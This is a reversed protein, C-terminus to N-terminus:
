GVGLLMAPAAGLRDRAKRGASLVDALTAIGRRIQSQDLAAFGMLLLDQAHCGLGTGGYQMDSPTYLAIGRRAARRQIVDAPPLHAPLFWSLHNGSDAGALRVDGFHQHLSEILADRRELYTKRVLRLHRDYEGSAIFEALITQELWAGGNDIRAKLREAAKVLGRPLVMYALRMGPALTESFGRLYIVRSQRDLSFMAPLAAGRYRYDSDSDDEIILAGAQEAWGILRERQALSLMGGVPRQRSPTVHALCVRGGPLSDVDIGHEGVSVECRIAGLSAYLEAAHLDGPNEMVVRRGPQVLLNAVVNFAHHSGSVVIIQESDAVIGRHFALWKSIGTRLSHLGSPPVVPQEGGPMRAQRSLVATAIKQWAKFPFLRGDEAPRFDVFPPIPMAATALCAVGRPGDAVCPHHSAPIEAIEPLTACVFTGVAPRTELYGEAILREYALLVTTRSVDLQQSLFRTAFIRTNPPLQGSIILGRLQEFLQSQLPKDLSRSLQIPFHM